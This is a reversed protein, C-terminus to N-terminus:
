PQGMKELDYDMPTKFEQNTKLISGRAAAGNPFVSTVKVVEGIRLERPVFIVLGTGAMLPHTTQGPVETCDSYWVEMEPHMKARIFFDPSDPDTQHFTTMAMTRSYPLILTGVEITPKM